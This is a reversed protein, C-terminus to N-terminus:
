HSLNTLLNEPQRLYHTVEQKSKILNIKLHWKGTRTEQLTGIVYIGESALNRLLKVSTFCIDFTVEHVRNSSVGAKSILFLVVHVSAFNWNKRTAKEPTYKFIWWTNVVQVFHSMRPALFLVFCFLFFCEKARHKIYHPVINEDVYLGEDLWGHEEFTASLMNLSPKLKSLKV